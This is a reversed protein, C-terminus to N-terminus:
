VTTIDLITCIAQEIQTLYSQELHGLIRIIRSKDIVRIQECLVVSDQIIRSLHYLFM